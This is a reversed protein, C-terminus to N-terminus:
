FTSSMTNSEKRFVFVKYGVFNWLFSAATALVKTTNLWLEPSMGAPASFETGIAVIGSNVLIAGV